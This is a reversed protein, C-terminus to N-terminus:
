SFIESTNATKSVEKVASPSLAIELGRMHTYILVQEFTEFIEDATYVCGLAIDNFKSYYFSYVTKDETTTIHVLNGFIVVITDDKKRIFYYHNGETINRM